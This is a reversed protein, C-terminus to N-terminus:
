RRLSSGRASSDRPASAGRASWSAGRRAGLCRVGRAVRADSGSAGGPPRYPLV